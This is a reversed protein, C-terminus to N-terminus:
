SPSDEETTSNTSQIASLKLLAHSQSINQEKFESVMNQMSKTWYSHNELFQTNKSHWDLPSIFVAFNSLELRLQETKLFFTSSGLSNLDADCIIKDLHTKPKQPMCTAM